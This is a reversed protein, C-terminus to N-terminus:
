TVIKHETHFKKSLLTFYYFTESFNIMKVIVFNIELKNRDSILKQNVKYPM